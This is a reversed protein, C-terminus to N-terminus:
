HWRHMEVPQCSIKPVSIDSLFSCSSQAPPYGGIQISITSSLSSLHESRVHCLTKFLFFPIFTIVHLVDCFYSPECWSLLCPFYLFYSCNNTWSFSSCQQVDLRLHLWSTQLATQSWRIRTICQLFLFFGFGFGVLFGLGWFMRLQLNNHHSLICSGELSGELTLATCNSTSVSSFFSKWTTLVSIHHKYYNELKIYVEQPPWLAAASLM